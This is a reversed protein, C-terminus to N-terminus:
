CGGGSDDDHGDDGGGDGGRHLRRGPSILSAMIAGRKATKQHRNNAQRIRRRSQTFRHPRQKGEDNRM